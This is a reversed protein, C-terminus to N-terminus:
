ILRIGGRGRVELSVHNQMKKILPLDENVAQASIVRACAKAINRERGLYPLVLTIDKHRGIKALGLLYTSLCYDRAPNDLRRLIEDRDALTLVKLIGQRALEYHRGPLLDFLLNLDDHTFLELLIEEAYTRYGNIIDENYYAIKLLQPIFERKKMKRVLTLPTYLQQKEPSDLVRTIEIFDDTTMFRLFTDFLLDQESTRKWESILKNPLAENLIERDEENALRCFIYICADISHDGSLYKGANEKINGWMREQALPAIIIPFPLTSVPELVSAEAARFKAAWEPNEPENRCLAQLAELYAAPSVGNNKEYRRVAEKYYLNARALDKHNIEYVRAIRILDIEKIGELVLWDQFKAFFGSKIVLLALKEDTLDPRDAFLDEQLHLVFLGTLSKEQDSNPSTLALRLSHNISGILNQPPVFLGERQHIERSLWHAFQSTIQYLCTRTAPKIIGFDTLSKSLLNTKATQIKM